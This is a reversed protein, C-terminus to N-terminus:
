KVNINEFGTYKNIAIATGQSIVVDFEYLIFCDVTTTTGTAGAIGTILNISTSNGDLSLCSRFEADNEHLGELNFALVFAGTNNAATAGSIHFTTYDVSCNARNDINQGFYKMASMFYNPHSSGSVIGTSSEYMLQRNKPFVYPGVVLQASTIGLSTRGSLSYQAVQGVVQSSRFTFLIGKANKLTATIPWTYSGVATDATSLNQTYTQISVCPISFTNNYARRVTESILESYEVISLVLRLKDLTYSTLIPTTADVIANAQTDLYLELDFNSGALESIPFVRQAFAGFFSPILAGYMEHVDGAAAVTISHGKRVSTKNVTSNTIAQNLGTTIVAATNDTLTAITTLPQINQNNGFFSFFSSRAMQSCTLNYVCPIYVNSKNFDQLVGGNGTVVVRNFFCNASSDLYITGAASFTYNVQFYIYSQHGYICRLKDNGLAPRFVIPDGPSFTKEGGTPAIFYTEERCPLEKKLSFKSNLPLNVSM